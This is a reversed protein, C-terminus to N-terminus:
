YQSSFDLNNLCKKRFVNLLLKLLRIEKLSCVFIEFM